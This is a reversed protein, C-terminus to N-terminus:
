KDMIYDDLNLTRYLREVVEDPANQDEAHQHYLSITKRTTDVVIRCRDCHEIHEELDKRLTDPIDGDIYDCL